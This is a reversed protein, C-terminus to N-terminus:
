GPARYGRLVAYRDRQAPTLVERAAIHTVLHAARVDGQATTVAAVAARVAEPSASGEAFLRDLAREAVILRAGAAIADARMTEMLQAMRARQGADLGLADAHELAHMPGAYGNLEAALALGMGRGAQLDAIETESLAKIDRSQLGSYPTAPAAHGPRHGGHHQAQAPGALLLMALAGIALTPRCATM